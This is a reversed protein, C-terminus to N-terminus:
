SRGDPSIFLHRGPDVGSERTLRSWRDRGTPRDHGDNVLAVAGEDAVEAFRKGGAVLGRDFMSHRQRRAHRVASSSEQTEENISPGTRIGRSDGLATFSLTSRDPSWNFNHIERGQEQCRARRAATTANNRFYIADPPFRV